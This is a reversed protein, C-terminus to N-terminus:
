IVNLINELYKDKCCPCVNTKCKKLHTTMCKKHFKHICNNFTFIVERIKFTDNCVQCIEDTDKKQKVTSGIRKLNNKCMLGIQESTICKIEDVTQIDVNDLIYKLIEDKEILPDTDITIIYSNSM